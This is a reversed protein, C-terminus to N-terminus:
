SYPWIRYRHTVSNDLQNWLDKYFKASRAHSPVAIFARRFVYSALDVAQVLRSHHSPVFHLADLFAELTRPQNGGPPPITLGQPDPHKLRGGNRRIR